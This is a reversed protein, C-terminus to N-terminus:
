IIRVIMEIEVPANLPLGSVGVASRAHKGKDGFVDILFESAGNAVKPQGTFNPSSNVFVVLKVIQEIRDLNGIVSKVASLCNIACIKACEIAKSEDVESNVWGQTFLKGDKMPLQGSTFVLNGSIQAPVYAALPTPATPLDHGILERIKEEIMYGEVIKEFIDIKLLYIRKYIKQNSVIQNDKRTLVSLYHSAIFKL